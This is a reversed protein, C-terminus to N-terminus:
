YEEDITVDETFVGCEMFKKDDEDEKAAINLKSELQDFKQHYMSPDGGQGGIGVSWPELASLPISRLLSSM